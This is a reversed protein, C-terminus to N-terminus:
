QRHEIGPLCLAPDGHGFALQQLEASVGRLSERLWRHPAARHNREHWLMYFDMTGLEPPADIVAFPMTQALQEAFPRGTTFILDTQALVYPVISYEPVSVAIRRSLGLELLRGDIPSLLAVEEPSPSIHDFSLYQEMSVAKARALPHRPHVLCSIATRFLPARRLMDPPRPWNGIALDMAGGALMPVLDDPKPMPCLDVIAHPARERLRAVIRPVMLMGLCNAAMIRFRRETQQPVFDRRPGLRRDIDHLIDGVSERLEHGRQTPVLHSGSRVLLPDGLIERLRRLALSVTPQTQGLIEATRSVSCETLLMHLIRMLRVDLAGSVHEPM